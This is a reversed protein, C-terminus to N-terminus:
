HITIYDYFIKRQDVIERIRNRALVSTLGLFGVDSVFNVKNTNDVSVLHDSSPTIDGGPTHTKEWRHIGSACKLPDSSSSSM